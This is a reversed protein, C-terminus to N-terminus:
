ALPYDGRGLAAAFDKKGGVSEAPSLFFYYFSLLLLTFALVLLSGM